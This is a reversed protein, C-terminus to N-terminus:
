IIEDIAATLKSLEHPKISFSPTLYIINGFPRIWVGQKIFEERMKAPDKIEKLEIVGVAGKVRVDVVNGRDRFQELSQTLHGEIRRIDEFVDGEEFLDLSANAAACSLPNAMYTPGHMFAKEPDDSLFEAYIKSRAVTAAMPVTGATLAKGLCIIDPTIGAQECAFMTGTRGFGTFIEDLILLVGEEECIKAIQKLIAGDHFIMGGAGQILPEMIVAAINDKETQLYERFSVFDVENRPLKVLHQQQLYGAFAKHMGDDSDGVSMAASTDGHYGEKFSLFRYKGKIGQNMWYQVAMKLAIEVSVSGSESFFVHDLDSPLLDALRKALTAAGEHMIGGLMVHSMQEVQAIMKEKMKPNNYGHCATWWSAIGDILKRGNSLELEVGDTGVVALADPATKMQAYPLWVHDYGERYWEPKDSRDRPTKEPSTQESNHKQMNQNKLSLALAAL